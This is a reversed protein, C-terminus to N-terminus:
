QFLECLYIQGDKGRSLGIGFLYFHSSVINAKETGEVAMMKQHITWVDVGKGVNGYYDTPRCKTGNSRSLQMAVDKAVSDLLMSRIYPPLKRKIRENNVLQYPNNIRPPAAPKLTATVTEPGGGLLRRVSSKKVLNRGPSNTMRAPLPGVKDSREDNEGGASNGFMSRRRRRNHKPTLPPKTNIASENKKEGHGGPGSGFISHRRHSRVKKHQEHSSTQSADENSVDVSAASSHNNKDEPKKNHSFFFNKV